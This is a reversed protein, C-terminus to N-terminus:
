WGLLLLLLLLLPVEGGAGVTGGVGVLLLLVEGGAGVTGGVGVLFRALIWNIDRSSRLM